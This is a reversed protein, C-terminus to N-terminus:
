KFERLKRVTNVINQLDHSKHITSVNGRSYFLTTHYFWTGPSKEYLYNDPMGQAIFKNVSDGPTIQYKWIPDKFDRSDEEVYKGINEMGRKNILYACASYCNKEVHKIMENDSCQIQGINLITWDPDIGKIEDIVELISKKWFPVTSLSMDDELIIAYDDGNKYATHIAKMHSMTTALEIESTNKATSKVNKLQEPDRGNIASIRYYNIVGYNKLENEMENRRDISSDLNIYYIPIYSLNKPVLYELKNKNIKPDIKSYENRMKKQSDQILSIMKRKKDYIQIYGYFYFLISIVVLFYLNLFILSVHSKKRGFFVILYYIYLIVFIVLVMYVGKLLELEPIKLVM